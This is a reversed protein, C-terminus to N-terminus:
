RSDGSRRPAALANRYEIAMVQIWPRDCRLALAIAARLEDTAVGTAIFERDATLGVPAPFLAVDLTAAARLRLALDAETGVLSLYVATAAARVDANADQMM